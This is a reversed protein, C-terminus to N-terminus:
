PKTFWRRYCYHYRGSFLTNSLNYLIKDIAKQFEAPMDTLGYYGTNFRYTGKAQGGIINFNCKKQQITM